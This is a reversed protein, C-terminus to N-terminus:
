KGGMTKRVEWEYVIPSAVFISSYTGIAIGFLIALAFDHIVNGGLFFLALVVLWTTLSTNATRPLTENVSRNILQNLSEKRYIRINERIRDFVVITDNISYGGLTLLAAIMSITIEKGLFSFLGITIVVDHMIAIIGAVGWIGSRFRFAVYVVIGVFAWFIAFFAQNKLHSGITPGVYEARELEYPNQPLEKQFIEQVKKSIGDDTEKLRIIISNQQPFDQLEGKLGNKLLIDRASALTIHQSFKLQVLTGGTFDIGFNLGKYFFISILSIVIMAGSFWLSIGKKGIFDFNTQKFFKMM